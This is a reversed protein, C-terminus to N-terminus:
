KGNPKNADSHQYLGLLRGFAFHAAGPDSGVGVDIPGVAGLCGGLLLGGEAGDDVVVLGGSEVGEEDLYATLAVCQVAAVDIGPGGVEGAGLAFCGCGVPVGHLEHDIFAVLAADFEVGPDIGVAGNGVDAAQGAKGGVVHGLQMGVPEEALAGQAYEIGTKAHYAIVDGADDDIDDVAIINIADM